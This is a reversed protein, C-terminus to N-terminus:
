GRDKFKKNIERKSQARELAKEYLKGIADRTKSKKQVIPQDKTMEIFKRVRKSEWIGVLTSTMIYLTLGSPAKYLMVPFMVVTMVRMMKQQQLQEPTQITSPPPAMYKQQIYFVGGMLLPVINISPLSTFYLNIPIPLMIFQDEASLDGLFSWGGFLQFFGFFAPQQRLEFALYLVAYLAMWIPMQLFTPLFGGICGVPNVGKEKYLRMQEQQMKKPDDGYRAKLADLEPKMEAMGKTLLQMQVQSKKSIPHLVLRVVLVLAIIALAWDFVVYGHLFDLFIVMLNALWAFTCWSCCGGMSYVILGSMELASYPQKKSLIGRDLPGAFVGMSFDTTQGAAIARVPSHLEIFLTPAGTPDTPSADGLSARISEISTALSKSPAGTGARTMPAHVALTFYRNTTGFWSLHQDQEKQDPSPWVDFKAAAVNSVVAARELMADHTIVSSQAPDRRESMLYGFQLRRIDLMENAAQTLDGPGYQVISVKHTLNSLNEVTQTLTIDYGDGENSQVAFVRRVKMVPTGAEDTLLTEFNGPSQESWVAGFLSISQGDVQISHACLMPVTFTALSGVPALFYRSSIDPLPPIVNAGSAIAAANRIAATRDAAHFWFESFIIRSIGAGTPSFEIQFRAKTPDLSGVSTVTSIAASSPRAKLKTTPTASPAQAVPANPPIVAVPANPPIVAVPANPPIVAVPAVAQAVETATTASTAAIPATQTTSQTSVEAPSDVFQKSKAAGKGTMVITVISAAFSIVLLTLLLKRTGKNM